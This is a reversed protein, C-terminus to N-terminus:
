YSCLGLGNLAGLTFVFTGLIETWCHSSSTKSGLKVGRAVGALLLNIRVGLVACVGLNLYLLLLEEYEDLKIGEGEM